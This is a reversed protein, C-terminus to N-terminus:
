FANSYKDANGLLSLTFKDVTYGPAPSSAM